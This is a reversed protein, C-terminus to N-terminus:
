VSVLDKLSEYKKQGFGEVELLQRVSTFRKKTRHDIIRQALVPGVGPLAELQAKTATNLDVKGTPTGAAVGSEGSAGKPPVMVKEGDSVPAALNLQDLDAGDVPGGAAAIADKVRSGDPLPYVGPAKVLGAVHVLLSPAASASATPAVRTLAPAPPETTKVYVFLSGAVVAAAMLALLGLEQPSARAVDRVRSLWGTEM